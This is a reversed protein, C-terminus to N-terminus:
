VFCRCVDVDVRSLGSRRRINGSNYGHAFLWRCFLRCLPVCICTRKDMHSSAGIAGHKIVTEVAVSCGEVSPEAIRFAYM